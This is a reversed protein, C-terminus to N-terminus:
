RQGLRRWITQLCTPLWSSRGNPGLRYDLMLKEVDVYQRADIDPNYPLAIAGPDLNAVLIDQDTSRLWQSYAAALATKGSGAMGVLFVTYTM